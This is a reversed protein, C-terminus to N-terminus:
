GAVPDQANMDRFGCADRHLHRQAGMGIRLRAAYEADSEYRKSVPMYRRTTVASARGGQPNADIANHMDFTHSAIEVLGSAQLEKVQAWNLIPKLGPVDPRERGDMWTGILAEVAPIHYQKLVPFVRTYFSEFGDDFTLLVAKDPLTLKGAHADIIQQLSIFHYGNDLLWRVHDGFNRREVAMRDFPPTKQGEAAIDHYGLVIYPQSAVPVPAASASASANAFPLCLAALLTTLGCRAIIPGFSFAM